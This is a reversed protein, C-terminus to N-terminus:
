VREGGGDEARDEGPSVTAWLRLGVVLCLLSGLTYLRWGVVLLVTEEARLGAWVLIGYWGAELIGLGGPTVAM